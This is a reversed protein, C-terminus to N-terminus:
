PYRAAMVAYALAGLQQGLGVDAYKSPVAGSFFSMAYAYETGGRALRVIGVYNDVYGTDGYFFGNKHSVTAEPLAAVLYNLGPKVEALRELLYDRLEGEVVDGHWLAALAQNMAEATVWNNYDLGLSHARFGPPHDLVIHEAGLQENVLASVRRVGKTADGDGVIKYLDRATVANSAWTDRVLTDVRELPYKGAELDLAVQYLVFLNMVCGSLQPVDGHVSVTEGTQLDTIAVAYDGPAGYEEIAKEMDTKLQLLDASLGEDAVSDGVGRPASTPTPIPRTAAAPSVSPEPTFPEPRSGGSAEAPITPLPPTATVDQHKSSDGFSCATILVLVLLVASSLPPLARKRAPPRDPEPWSTVCGIVCAVHM